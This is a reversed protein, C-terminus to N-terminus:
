CTSDCSIVAAVNIKALGSPECRDALLAHHGRLMRVVLYTTIRYRAAAAAATAAAASSRTGLENRMRAGRGTRGRHFATGSPWRTAWTGGSPDGPSAGSSAVVVGGGEGVVGGGVVVVGGGGVGAASGRTVGGGAARGGARVGAAGDSLEGALGV